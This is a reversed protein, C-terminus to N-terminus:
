PFIMPMSLLPACSYSLIVQLAKKMWPSWLHWCWHYYSSWITEWNCRQQWSLKCQCTTSSLSTSFNLMKQTHSCTFRHMLCIQIHIITCIHFVHLSSILVSRCMDKTSPSRLLSWTAKNMGAFVAWNRWSACRSGILVDSLSIATSSIAQALNTVTSLSMGAMMDVWRLSWPQIWANDIPLDHGGM